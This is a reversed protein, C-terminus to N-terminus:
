FGLLSFSLLFNGENKLAFEYSGDAAAVSAKWLNSDKAQLLSVTVSQLPKSNDDFVKAKIKTSTQAMPTAAILLMAVLLIINIKHMAANKSQNISFSRLAM